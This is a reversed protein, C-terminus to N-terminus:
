EVLEVSMITPFEVGNDNVYVNYTLKLKDGVNFADYTTSSVFHNLQTNKGTILDLSYALQKNTTSSPSSDLLIVRKKSIIVVETEEKIPNGLQTLDVESMSTPTQQQHVTNNVPVQPTQVVPQEEIVEPPTVPQQVVSEIVPEQIVQENPQNIDIESVKKTDKGFFWNLGLALLIILVGVIIGAKKFM